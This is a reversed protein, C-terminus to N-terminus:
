SIDHWEGRDEPGEYPPKLFGAPISASFMPRFDGEIMEPLIEGAWINLTMLGSSGREYGIRPQPITASSDMMGLRLRGERAGGLTFFFYLQYYNHGLIDRFQVLAYVTDVGSPFGLPVDVRRNHPVVEYFLHEYVSYYSGELTIGRSQEVHDERVHEVVFKLFDHDKNDYLGLALIDM